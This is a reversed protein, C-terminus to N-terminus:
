SVPKETARPKAPSGSAPKIRIRMPGGKPHDIEFANTKRVLDSLKGFGFTRSDFDPFLKPLNKGVEGLAFWEDESDM